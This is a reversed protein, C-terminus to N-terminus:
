ASSVPEAGSPPEEAAISALTATIEDLRPHLQYVHALMRRMDPQRIPRTGEPLEAAGPVSYAWVMAPIKALEERVVRRTNEEDMEGGFWAGTDAGPTVINLDVTVGAVTTQRATQFIECEVRRGASWAATQWRFKALGLAHVYEVVAAKGYVGVYGPPMVSNIGRFYNAVHRLMGEPVDTDVAFYICGADWGLARAQAVARTANEQGRQRGDLAEGATDEYVAHVAVGASRYDAVEAADLCKKAHKSLYRVVGGFGAAALARGGPRGYAWDAYHLPASM